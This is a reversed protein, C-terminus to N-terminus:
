ARSEPLSPPPSAPPPAPAGAPPPASARPPGARILRCHVYRNDGEVLLVESFGQRHHAPPAGVMRLEAYPRHVVPQAQTAMLYKRPSLHHPTDPLVISHEDPSFTQQL